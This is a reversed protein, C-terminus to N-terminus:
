LLLTLACHPQYPLPSTAWTGILPEWGQLASSEWLWSLHCLFSFLQRTSKSRPLMMLSRYRPQSSPLLFCLSSRSSTFLFHAALTLLHAIMKILVVVSPPLIPLFFLIRSYFIGSSYSCSDLSSRSAEKIQINTFALQTHLSVLSTQESGM